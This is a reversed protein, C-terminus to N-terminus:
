TCSKLRLLACQEVVCRQRSLWPLVVCFQVLPAVFPAGSWCCGVHPMDADAQVPTRGHRRLFLHVLAGTRSTRGLCSLARTGGQSASEPWPKPGGLLRSATAGSLRARAAAGPDAEAEAEVGAEVADAVEAEVARAKSGRAAVRRELHNRNRSTIMTAVAAMAAAAAAAAETTTATTTTV